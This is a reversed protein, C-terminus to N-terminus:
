AKLREDNNKVDQDEEIATLKDIERKFTARQDANLLPAIRKIKEKLANEAEHRAINMAHKIKGRKGAIEEPKFISDLIDDNM